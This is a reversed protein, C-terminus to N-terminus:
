AYGNELIKKQFLQYINNQYKGMYIKLAFYFFTYQLKFLFLSFSFKYTKFLLFGIMSTGNLIKAM